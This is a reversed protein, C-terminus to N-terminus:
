MLCRSSTSGGIVSQSRSAYSSRPRQRRAACGVGHRRLPSRSASSSSWALRDARFVACAAFVHDFLLRAPLCAARTAAIVGRRVGAAAEESRAQGDAADRGDGAEVERRGQRGVDAWRMRSSRGRCASSTRSGAADARALRRGRHLKTGSSTSRRSRRAASSSRSRGRQVHVASRREAGHVEPGRARVDRVDGEGARSQRCIVKSRKFISAYFNMAEEAQTDFWLFPTITPM